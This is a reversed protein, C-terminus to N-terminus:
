GEKLIKEIELVSHNTLTKAVEAVVRSNVEKHLKKRLEGLVQPPAVLIIHEFENRHAMAYLQGAIEDAFRDKSIRHWDTDEVASRPTNPGDMRGPRDSGQEHTPPNREQMGGVVDLDPYEADGRNRLYLAKEGDAILVWIGHKLRVGSLIAEQTQWSQVAQRTTRGISVRSAQLHEPHCILRAALLRFEM